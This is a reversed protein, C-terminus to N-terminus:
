RMGGNISVEQARADGPGLIQRKPRRWLHTYSVPLIKLGEEVALNYMEDPISATDIEIQRNGAKTVPIKLIAM